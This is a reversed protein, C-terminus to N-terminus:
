KNRRKSIIFKRCGIEEFDEFQNYLDNWSKHGSVELWKKYREAFGADNQLRIEIHEKIKSPQAGAFFETVLYVEFDFRKFSRM